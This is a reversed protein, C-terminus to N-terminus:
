RNAGVVGDRKAGVSVQFEAIREVLEPEYRTNDAIGFVEAIAPLNARARDSADNKEIAVTVESPSLIAM